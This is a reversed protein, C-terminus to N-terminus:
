GAHPMQRELSLAQLGKQLKFAQWSVQHSTAPVHGMAASSSVGAEFYLPNTSHAGSENRDTGLSNTSNGHLIMRQVDAALKVMGNSLDTKAPDYPTGGQAVAASEKFSVGRGIAFVAINATKRVLTSASYSVAGIETVVLRITNSTSTLNPDPQSIQNFAHVLGNSPAKRIREFAPFNRVFLTYLIPELGQRTLLSGDNLGSGAGTGLIHKVLPPVYQSNVLENLVSKTVTRESDDAPAQQAMQFRQLRDLKRDDLAVLDDIAIQRMLQYSLDHPHQLRDLIAPTVNTAQM